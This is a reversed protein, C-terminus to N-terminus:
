NQRLTEGDDIAMSFIRGRSLLLMLRGKRSGYVLFKDGKDDPPNDQDPAGFSSRLEAETSGTGIGSVHDCGENACTIAAVTSKNSWYIDYTAHEPGEGFDYDWLEASGEKAAVDVTPVGKLYRVEAKSMGIVVGWYRLDSGDRLRAFQALQASRTVMQAKRAQEATWWGFYAYAIAGAVVAAAVLWLSAKVVKRWAQRKDVQWATILAITSLLIGFGM